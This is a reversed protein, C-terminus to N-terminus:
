SESVTSGSYTIFISYQLKQFRTKLVQALLPFDEGKSCYRRQEWPTCIRPLLNKVKRTCGRDTPAQCSFVYSTM